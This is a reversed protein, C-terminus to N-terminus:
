LLVNLIIIFVYMGSQQANNGTLSSMLNNSSRGVNGASKPRDAM